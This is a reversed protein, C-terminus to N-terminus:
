ILWIVIRLVFLSKLSPFFSLTSVDESIDRDSICELDKMEGLSLRELFPLKSLPPLHNCRDCRSLKIEVLNEISSLWSSFTVGSYDWVELIKLNPHPQISDLLMEDHGEQHAWKLKLKELHLKERLNKVGCDSNADELQESIEIELTGKLNNLGNM